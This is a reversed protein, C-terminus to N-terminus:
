ADWMVLTTVRPSVSSAHTLVSMAVLYLDNSLSTQGATEFPDHTIDDCRHALAQARM